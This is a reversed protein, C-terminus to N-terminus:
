PSHREPEDGPSPAPSIGQDTMALSTLEPLDEIGGGSLHHAFIAARMAHDRLEAWDREHRVDRFSEQKREEPSLDDVDPVNIAKTKDFMAIMAELYGQSAILDTVQGNWFSVTRDLSERVTRGPTGIIMETAEVKLVAANENPVAAALALADAAVSRTGQPM